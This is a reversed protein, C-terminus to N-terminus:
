EVKTKNEHIWDIFKSIRTHGAEENYKSKPSKGTSMICSNIGALKGDIFLGGGSDGSALFFELSTYKKSDRASPDCVLMDKEIYDIINSGARKQGDSKDSGTIFNGTLGYGAISCIKGVEDNKDYLKPYFDLGLDTPSYCIAIDAVGFSDETFDKHVIIKEITHKTENVTVVCVESKSVVHAATLVHHSDIAVASACYLSGQKEVGCIKIVCHFKNGYETYKSDPTNPDITGSIVSLPLCLFLLISWIIKMTHM